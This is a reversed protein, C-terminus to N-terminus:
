MNKLITLDENKSYIWFSGNTNEYTVNRFNEINVKTGTQLIGIPHLTPDPTSILQYMENETDTLDEEGEYYYIINTWSCRIQFVMDEDTIETWTEKSITMLDDTSFAM